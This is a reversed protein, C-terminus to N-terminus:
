KAVTVPVLPVRVCEAVTMYWMWSKVSDALGVLRVTLAPTAPVEAMATAGTLPKAPVTVKAREVFEVLRDHM